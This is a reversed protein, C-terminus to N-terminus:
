FVMSKGRKKLREEARVKKETLFNNIKIRLEKVHTDEWKKIEAKTIATLGGKKGVKSVAIAENSMILSELSGNFNSEM